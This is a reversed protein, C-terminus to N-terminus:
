KSLWTAFFVGFYGMFSGFYGMIIPWQSELYIGKLPARQLSGLVKRPVGSAPVVGSRRGLSRFGAAFPVSIPRRRAGAM